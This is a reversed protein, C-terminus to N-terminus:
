KLKKELYLSDKVTVERLGGERCVHSEAGAVRRGEVKTHTDLVIM